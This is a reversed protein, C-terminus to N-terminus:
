KLLMMKKSSTFTGATITYVYVGTSFQSADFDVKYSGAVMEKNLLEAVEQGLVNYVKLSVLGQQPIAFEIQTSPNFPNPYNQSLEYVEPIGSSIVEVGVANDYAAIVAARAAIPDYADNLDDDWHLAGIPLGDINSIHTTQAFNEIFDSIKTMGTLGNEDKVGDRYGPITAGDFDGFNYSHAMDNSEGAGEVGYQGRNWDAMDNATAVDIGDDVFAVDTEINDQSVMNSYEDLLMETRSNYWLGPLNLVAHPGEISNWNLYSVPQTDYPAAESNFGGTYYGNTVLEPTNYNVNDAILIKYKNMDAADGVLNSDADLYEAMVQQKATITDINIVGMFLADPDQGGTAVNVTDEGVWNSNTFLNNTFYGEVYYANLLFYKHGNIFSNHNIYAFKTVSEQQLFTLGGGSVTTNEIWLVDIPKKCMFVRSGWWQDPQFLDRFYSNTLQVTAAGALWGDINFINIMSFEFICNDIILSEKVPPDSTTITFTENDIGGTLSKCQWQLNEMTLSGQIEHTGLEVGDTAQPVVTAKTGGAAGRITLTGGPNTCSIIGVMVYFGDAELEYITNPDVRTGDGNVDGNIAAELTGTGSPVQVVRQALTFTTFALLVIFIKFLTSRM